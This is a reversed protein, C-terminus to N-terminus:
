PGLDDADLEGALFTRGTGSLEYVGGESKVLLEAKSLKKLRKATYQRDYGINLAIVKPTARIDHEEFFELIAYDIPSMWPVREVMTNRWNEGTM